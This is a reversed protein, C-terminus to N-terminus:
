LVTLIKIAEDFGSQRPLLGIKDAILFTMRESKFICQTVNKHAM